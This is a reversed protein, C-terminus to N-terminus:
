GVRTGTAEALSALESPHTLNFQIGAYRFQSALGPKAGMASSFSVEPPRVNLYQALIMRMATHIVRFRNRDLEHHFRDAREREDVSLLDAPSGLEESPECSILWVDVGRPRATEADTHALSVNERPPIFGVSTLNSVGRRM